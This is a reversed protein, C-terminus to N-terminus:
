KRKLLIASWDGKTLSQVHKVKGSALFKEETEKLQEALIGSLILYGSEELSNVLFDKEEFLVNQLINAFILSYSEKLSKRESLLFLKISENESYSNLELNQRTNVLANEDIDLLDVQEGECMLYALGLIGSGCGFDLCNNLKKEITDFLKLCLYTTEHTGTGFGMGPYIKINVKDQFETNDWSPTVVLRSSVEIPKYYKKWEQNWDKSELDSIEFSLNKQKNLFQILTEDAKEFFYSKKNTNLLAEVEFLVSEPIDGGSYARDGLIEDVWAEDINFESSGLCYFQQLKEEIIGIDQFNNSYQIDIQQYSMIRHTYHLNVLKM